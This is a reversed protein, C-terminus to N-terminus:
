FPCPESVDLPLWDRPVPHRGRYPPSLTVVAVGSERQRRESRVRARQQKRRANPGTGKLFRRVKAVLEPHEVERVVWDLYDRPVDRLPRGKHRGFWLTVTAPDRM